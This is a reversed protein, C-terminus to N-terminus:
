ITLHDGVKLVTESSGAASVHGWEVPPPRPLPRKALRLRMVLDFQM